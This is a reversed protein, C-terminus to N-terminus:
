TEVDTLKYITKTKHPGMGSRGVVEEGDKRSQLVEIDYKDGEFKEPTYTLLVGEGCEHCVGDATLYKGGHQVRFDSVREFEEHECEPM